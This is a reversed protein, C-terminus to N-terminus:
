WSIMHAIACLLDKCLEVALAPALLHGNNAQLVRVVHATAASGALDEKTLDWRPSATSTVLGLITSLSIHVAPFALFQLDFEAPPIYVEPPRFSAAKRDMTLSALTHFTDKRADDGLKLSVNDNAGGSVDTEVGLITSRLGNNANLDAAAFNLIGVPAVFYPCEGSTLLDPSSAAEAASTHYLYHLHQLVTLEALPGPLLGLQHVGEVGARKLERLSEYFVCLALFYVFSCFQPVRM